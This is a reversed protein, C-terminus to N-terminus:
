QCQGTSGDHKIANSTTCRGCYTRRGHYTTDPLLTAVVMSIIGGEVERIRIWIHLFSGTSLHMCTCGLM